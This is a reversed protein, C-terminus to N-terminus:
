QNNKERLAFGEGWCAINNCVATPPDLRIANIRGTLMSRKPSLPNNFKQKEKELLAACTCTIFDVPLIREKWRSCVTKKVFM